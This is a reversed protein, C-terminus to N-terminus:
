RKEEATLARVQAVQPDIRRRAYRAYAVTLALTSVFQLLGFVMGTNIEGLVKTGMFEPAFASAVVYGLYWALFGLVAPLVFVTTRRKLERFEDTDRIAAFDPRGAADVLLPPPPEEFTAFGRARRSEGPPLIAKTM